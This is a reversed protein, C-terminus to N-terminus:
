AILRRTGRATLLGALLAALSILLGARILQVTEPSLDTTVTATRTCSYAAGGLVGCVILFPWRGLGSLLLGFLGGALFGFLWAVAVVAVPVSVRLRTEEFVPQATSVDQGRRWSEFLVRVIEQADEFGRSVDGGRTLLEPWQELVVYPAAMASGLAILVIMLLRM